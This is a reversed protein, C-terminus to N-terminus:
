IPSVVEWELLDSDFYTLFDRASWFGYGGFRLIKSNYVFINSSVQMKHNFSNDIRKISDNRLIYVLGGLNHVFYHTSDLLLPTYKDFEFEPDVVIKVSDIKFTELDIKKYFDKFFVFMVNKTSDLSSFEIEAVKGI